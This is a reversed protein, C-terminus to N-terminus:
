VEGGLKGAAHTATRKSTFLAQLTAVDGSEVVNLLAEIAKDVSGANLVAEALQANTDGDIAQYDALMQDALDDIADRQPGQAAFLAPTHVPCPRAAGIAASLAAGAASPQANGAPALTDEPTEALYVGLQEATKSISLPLGMEHAAKANERAAVKDEPEDLELKVKPVFAEPGGNFVAWWFLAENAASAVLQADAKQLDYRLEAHVSGLAQSGGSGTNGTGNSLAGGLYLKSVQEDHYRVKSEFADSSGAVSSDKPFDVTIGGELIAVTDTGLQMALTRLAAREKPTMQKREEPVTIVPTPKGYRNLFRTWDFECISKKVYEWAAPLALGSRVPTGPKGNAFVVIFRGAPAEVLEGNPVSPKIYLKRPDQRDFVFFKPDRWHLKKITRATPTLEWEAELICVSYHRAALIQPMLERLGAALLMDIGEQTKKKERLLSATSVDAILPQNATQSVRIDLLSRLNSDRELMEEGLAYYQLPDYGQRLQELVAVLKTFTWSGAPTIDYALRTGEVTIPKGGEYPATPSALLEGSKRPVAPDNVNTFSALNEAQRVMSYARQRSVGLADGIASYTAGEDRLAKATHIRNTM